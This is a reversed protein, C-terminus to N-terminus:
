MDEWGKSDDKSRPQKLLHKVINKATARRLYAKDHKVAEGRYFANTAARIKLTGVMNEYWKPFADDVFYSTFNSHRKLANMWTSLFQPISSAAYFNVSKDMKDVLLFQCFKENIEKLDFGETTPDLDEHLTRGTALAFKNYKDVGRQYGNNTSVAKLPNHKAPMELTDSIVDCVSPSNKTYPNKIGTSPAVNNASMGNKASMSSKPISKPTLFGQSESSSNM